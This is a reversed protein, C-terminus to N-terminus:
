KKEKLIDEIQWTATRCANVLNPTASPENKARELLNVLADIVATSNKQYADLELRAVTQKLTEVQNKYYEVERQACTYGFKAISEHLIKNYSTVDFMRGHGYTATEKARKQWLPLYTELDSLEM